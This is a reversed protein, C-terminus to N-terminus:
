CKCLVVRGPGLHVVITQRETIGGPIRDVWGQVLLFEDELGVSVGEGVRAFRLFHHQSSKLGNDSLDVNAGLGLIPEHKGRPITHQLPVCRESYM